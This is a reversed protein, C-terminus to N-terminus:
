SDTRRAPCQRDGFRCGVSDAAKGHPDAGIYM